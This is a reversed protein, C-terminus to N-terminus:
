GYKKKSIIIYKNPVLGDIKLIEISQGEKFIKEDKSGCKVCIISVVSTKDFTYSIKLNKFKEYKKCQIFYIKKMMM